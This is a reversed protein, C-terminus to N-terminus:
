LFFFFFLLVNVNRYFILNNSYKLLRRYPSRAESVRTGASQPWSRRKDYRSLYIVLLIPSGASNDRFWHRIEVSKRM